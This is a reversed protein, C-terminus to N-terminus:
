STRRGGQMECDFRRRIYIGRLVSYGVIDIILLINFSGLIGVWLRDRAYTEACLVTMLGITFGLLTIIVAFALAGRFFLMLRSRRYDVLMFGLRSGLCGMFNLQLLLGYAILAVILTWQPPLGLALAEGCAILVPVFLNIAGYFTPLLVADKFGVAYIESVPYRFDGRAIQKNMIVGDQELLSAVISRNQVGHNQFRLRSPLMSWVSLTIGFGVLICLAVCLTGAVELDAGPMSTQFISLVENILGPAVTKALYAIALTPVIPLLSMKLHTTISGSEPNQAVLRLTARGMRGIRAILWRELPGSIKDNDFGRGTKHAAEAPRPSNAGFWGTRVPVSLGPRAFLCGGLAAASLWAGCAYLSRHFEVIPGRISTTVLDFWCVIPFYEILAYHSAQKNMATDMLTAGLRVLQSDSIGPTSYPLTRVILSFLMLGFAAMVSYLMPRRLVLFLRRLVAFRSTVGGAGISAAVLNGSIALADILVWLVMAACASALLSLPRIYPMVAAFGPETALEVLEISFWSYMFLTIGVFYLTSLSLFRFGITLRLIQWPSAPTAALDRMPPALYIKQRWRSGAASLMVLGAALAALRGGSQQFLPPFRRYVNWAFVGAQTAIAILYGVFLIMGLAALLNLWWPRKHQQARFTNGVLTRM